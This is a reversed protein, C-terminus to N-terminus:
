RRRAARAQKQAFLRRQRRIERDLPSEDSREAHRQRAARIGAKIHPQAGRTVDDATELPGITRM